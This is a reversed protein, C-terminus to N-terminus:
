LTTLAICEADSLATPFILLQKTNSVFGFNFGIRFLNPNFTATQSVSGREVGDVFLKITSGDWKYLYKTLTAGSPNFSINSGFGISQV